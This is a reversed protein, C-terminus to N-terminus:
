KNGKLALCYALFNELEVKSIKIDGVSCDLHCNGNRIHVWAVLEKIIEQDSTPLKSYAKETAKNRERLRM